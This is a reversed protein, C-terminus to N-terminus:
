TTRRRRARILAVFLGIVLVLVITLIALCSIHPARSPEPQTTEQM